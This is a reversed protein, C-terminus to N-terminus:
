CSVTGGCPPCGYRVAIDKVMFAQLKTCHSGYILIKTMSGPAYDWGDTHTPDWPIQNTDFFVAVRSPDPPTSTLDISCSPKALGTVIQEMYMKLLSPDKGPYFHPPGGPRPAGGAQALRDLCASGGVEESVGLVITKIGSTLLAKIEQVVLECDGQGCTTPEGDTSLLVYREAIGDKLAKYFDHVFRMAGRTPTGYGGGCFPNVMNNIYKNVMTANNIEPTVTVVDACSGQDGPFQSCLKDPCAKGQCPRMPFEEYGWRIRDQYMTVLPTLADRATTYRTGTGFGKSTSGSVDFAIIVDPTKPSYGITTTTMGCSAGGDWPQVVLDSRGGPADGPAGADVESGGGRGGAGGGAGGTGAGGGSGLGGDTGSGGTGAGGAGGGGGAQGAVGGTGSGGVGGTGTPGSTRGDPAACAAIMLASVISAATAGSIRFPTLTSSMFALTEGDLGACWPIRGRVRRGRIM